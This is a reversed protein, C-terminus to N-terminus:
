FLSLIVLLCYILVVVFHSVLLLCVFIVLLCYIFVVVFHSVLLFSTLHVSHNIGENGWGALNEPNFICM